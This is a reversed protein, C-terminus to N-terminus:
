KTKLVTVLVHLEFVSPLTTTVLFQSNYGAKLMICLSLFYIYYNVNGSTEM